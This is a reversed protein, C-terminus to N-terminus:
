IISLIKRAISDMEIPIEIRIEDSIIILKEYETYVKYKGKNKNNTIRRNSIKKISKTYIRSIYSGSFNMKKAIYGQKYGQSKYM